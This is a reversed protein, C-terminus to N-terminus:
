KGKLTIFSKLICDMRNSIDSADLKMYDTQIKYILKDQLRFEFLLYGAYLKSKKGKKGSDEKDNEYIYYKIQLKNKSKKSKKIYNEIQEKLLNDAKEKTMYNVLESKMFKSYEMHSNIFYNNSEFLTIAADKLNTNPIKEFTITEKQCSIRKEKKSPKNAESIIGYAFFLVISILILYILKSM